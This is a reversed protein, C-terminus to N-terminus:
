YKFMLIKETASINFHQNYVMLAISLYLQDMSTSGAHCLTFNVRLYKIQQIM